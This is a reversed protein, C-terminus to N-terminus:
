PKKKRVFVSHILFAFGADAGSIVVNWLFELKGSEAILCFRYEPFRLRLNIGHVFLGRLLDRALIAM